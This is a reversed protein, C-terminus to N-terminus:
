DLEEIDGAGLVTTRIEPAGHYSVDGSGMVSIDLEKESWVVVDGSGMITVDVEDARIEELEVDGSGIVEVTVQRATGPKSGIIDGSGNIVTRLIDAEIRGLEITGSGAVVLEVERATVKALRVGGSGALELSLTHAAVQYLNIDGSGVLGVQLEDVQLPKVYIEGSGKLTIMKLTPVSLIFKLSGVRQNNRTTGLYLTGGKLYFPERDLDKNNGKVRLLTVDDQTIKLEASGFLVVSDLELGEVSRTGANVLASFGACVLFVIAVLLGVSPRGSLLSRKRHIFM